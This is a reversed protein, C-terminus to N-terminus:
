LDALVLGSQLDPLTDEVALKGREFRRVFCSIRVLREARYVGPFRIMAWFLEISGTSRELFPSAKLVDRRSLAKGLRNNRSSTDRSTVGRSAYM